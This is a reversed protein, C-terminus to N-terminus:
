VSHPCDKRPAPCPWYLDHRFHRWPPLYVRPHLGSNIKSRSGGFMRSGGSRVHLGDTHGQEEFLIVLVHYAPSTTSRHLWSRLFLLMNWTHKNLTPTVRWCRM